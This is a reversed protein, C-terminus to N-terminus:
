SKQGDSVHHLAVQQETGQTGVAQCSSGPAEHSEPAPETGPSVYRRTEAETM